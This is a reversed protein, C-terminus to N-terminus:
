EVGQGPVALGASTRIPIWRTDTPQSAAVTAVRSTRRLRDLRM